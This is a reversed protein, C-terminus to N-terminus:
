VVAAALAVPLTRHETVYLFARSRELLVPEVNASDRQKWIARVEAQDSYGTRRKVLAPHIGAEQTSIDLANDTYHMEAFGLYQYQDGLAQSIARFFLRPSVIRYCCDYGENAEWRRHADESYEKAASFILLDPTMVRCNDMSVQGIYGGRIELIGTLAPYRHFSEPTIDSVTGTLSKSGECNDSVLEGHKETKRFDSLSGVLVAGTDRLALMHERRCYKFLEM